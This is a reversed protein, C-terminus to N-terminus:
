QLQIPPLHLFTLTETKYDAWSFEDGTRQYNKM